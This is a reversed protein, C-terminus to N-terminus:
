DLLLSDIIPTKLTTKFFNNKIDKLLYYKFYILFSTCKKPDKKHVLFEYPLLQIIYNLILGISSITFNM